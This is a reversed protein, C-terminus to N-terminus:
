QKFFCETCKSKDRCKKCVKNKDVIGAIHDFVKEIAVTMPSDLAWALRRLTASYQDSLEPTYAM